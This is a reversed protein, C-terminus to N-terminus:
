GCRLAKRVDIASDTFRQTYPRRVNRETKEGVPADDHRGAKVPRDQEGDGHEREEATGILIRM